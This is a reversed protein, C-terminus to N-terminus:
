LQQAAAQKNAVKAALQELAKPLPVDAGVIAAAILVERWWAVDHGGPFSEDRTTIGRLACRGLAATQAAAPFLWELEGRVARLWPMREPPPTGAADPLLLRGWPTSACVAGQFLDPHRAILRAAAVGGFSSGAAVWSIAPNLARLAEAIEDLLGVDGLLETARGQFDAAHNVMAVYSIGAACALRNIDAARLAAGDFLVLGVGAVAGAGDGAQCRVVDIVGPSSVSNTRADGCWPAAIHAGMVTVTGKTSCISPGKPRLGLQEGQRCVKLWWQRQAAGEPVVAPEPIPLLRVGGVWGCPM